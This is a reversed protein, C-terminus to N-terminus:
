NAAAVVSMDKKVMDEMADMLFQGTEDPRSLMPSHSAQIGKQTVDAGQDVVMKVLYEQMAPPLAHDQETVLYWCPVDQWGAYVHEGGKQLAHVSQKELKSVWQKGEDEPLDHYMMDRADVVIDAFGTEENIVWQPPPQGNNGDLMSMGEIAFGTAMLAVGIVNGHPETANRSAPGSHPKRTFGRVASVGVLGGYSHVVVIVDNGSATEAEIATRAATVDDLFTAAADGTTSPLTIAVCKYGRETLQASVKDWVSANHWAGPVLVFTPKPTSSM